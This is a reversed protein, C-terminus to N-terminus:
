KDNRKVVGGSCQWGSFVFQYLMGFIWVEEIFYHDRDERKKGEGEEDVNKNKDGDINKGRRIGVM